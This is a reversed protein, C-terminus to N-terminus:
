NTNFPIFRSTTVSGQSILRQVVLDNSSNPDGNCIQAVKDATRSDLVTVSVLVGLPLSSYNKPTTIGNPDSTWKVEAGTQYAYNFELRICNELIPQHSHWAGSSPPWGGTSPDWSASTPTTGPTRLFIPASSSAVRKRTLYSRNLNMGLSNNATMYVCQLGIENYPDSPDGTAAIFRIQHSGYSSTAGGLGITNPPATSAFFNAYNQYATGNSSFSTMNGAFANELDKAIINLGIRAAQAAEMRRNGTEWFSLSAGMLNFMFAMMMSMVALAVLVELLTFAAFRRFAPPPLRPPPVMTPASRRSARLVRSRRGRRGAGSDVSPQPSGDRGQLEFPAAPAMM